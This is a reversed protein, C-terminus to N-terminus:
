KKTELEVKRSWEQSCNSVVYENPISRQTKSPQVVTRCPPRRFVIADAM